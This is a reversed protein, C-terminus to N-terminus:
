VFVYDKLSTVDSIERAIHYRLGCSSRIIGLILSVDDMTTNNYQPGPYEMRYLSENRVSHYPISDQHPRFKICEDLGARPACLRRYFPFRIEKCPTFSAPRLTSWWGLDLASILSLTSSFM